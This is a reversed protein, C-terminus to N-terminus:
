LAAHRLECCELEEVQVVVRDHMHEPAHAAEFGQAANAPEELRVDLAADRRELGRERQVGVLEHGVPHGPRVPGGRERLDLQVRREVAERTEAQAAQAVVQGQHVEAREERAVRRVEGREVQLARVHRRAEQVAQRGEGAEGREVEGAVDAEVPHRAGLGRELQRRRQPRELHAAALQAAHPAAPGQGAGAEGVEVEGAVVEAPRDRAPQGRLEPQERRQARERQAVGVQAPQRGAVHDIGRRGRQGPEVELVVEDPRPVGGLDDGREVRAEGLEGREGRELEGVHEAGVARVLRRQEARGQAAHGREGREVAGDAREGGSVEGRELRAAHANALDKKRDLLCGDTYLM